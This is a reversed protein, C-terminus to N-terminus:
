QLVVKYIKIFKQHTIKILYIGKPYKSLDIREIKNSASQSQLLIGIQSYVIVKCDKLEKFDIFLVDSTPNPYLTIEEKSQLTFDSLQLRLYLTTDKTVKLVGEKKLYNNHLVQYEYNQNAKIDFFKANGYADTIKEENNLSITANEIIENEKNILNFFVKFRQYENGYVFKHIRMPSSGGLYNAVIGVTYTKGKKLGEFTYESAKTLSDLPKELDDLYLTYGKLIKTTDNSSQLKLDDIGFVFADNSICQIAIYVKQGGYKALNFSYKTWDTPTAFISDNLLFTFDKPEKGTTSIGVKFKELGYRDTVSKAFFSFNTNTALQIQPTILWDNNTDKKSAFSTAIKEGSKAKLEKWIPRTKQSNMIMFAMKEGANPFSYNNAPYTRVDDLDILTYGGFKKSWDNYQEFDDEFIVTTDKLMASIAKSNWTIKAKGEELHETSLISPKELYTTLIVKEIGNKNAKITSEINFYNERIVSYKKSSEGYVFRFAVRGLHNTTKTTGNFIIKTNSLPKGDTDKVEFTLNYGPKGELKIEKKTLLNAISVKGKQLIYGYNEVQYNESNQKYFYFKAVGSSDSKRKQGDMLVDVGEMAKGTEKDKIKLEVAFSKQMKILLNPRWKSINKFSPPTENDDFGYAVTHLKTQSSRVKTKDEAYRGKNDGWLLQIVINKTGSYAFPKNLVFTEWGTKGSLTYTSDFFVELANSMDIFNSLAEQSVEKIKISFNELKRKNKNSTAAAIDFSLEKIVKQEEGLESKYYLMQTKNNEYYNAFPYNEVVQKEKGLIVEDKGIFLEYNKNDFYISPNQKDAVNVALSIPISNPASASVKVIFRLTDKQMSNLALPESLSKKINLYDNPFLLHIKGKVVTKAKGKNQIPVLLEATEGLDLLGNNNGNQEKIKIKETFLLLDPTQLYISKKYRQTRLTDKFMYNIQINFDVKHGDLISDKLDVYFQNSILFSSEKAMNYANVEINKRINKIFVDSSSITVKVNKAEKLGLNKLKVKLNFTQSPSPEGNELVFEKVFIYPENKTEISIRKKYPKYQSHTVVIDAFGAQEFPNITMDVTGSQPVLAAKHLVSDKSIAVYSGAAASVTFQTSKTFISGEHLVNNEKGQTLYILLSPDSLCHYAEWYYRPSAAREYSKDHAEAVALNGVFVLADVSVYDSGFAADYAGLSSGEKSPMQGKVFSHAGVAWYFDEYWYSDPASGIYAVAGGKEKRMLAEGICEQVDFDGSECCNALILPYKNENTLTKVKSITLQPNYWTTQTCHATYNFLAAKFNDDAYCGSYSNSYTKVGTFGHEANFYNTTAYNITPVGVASRWYGDHGAIMTVKNLFSDDAFQYQEYYLIKDLMNKLEENTRASLRGYYMDPFIDNAGDMCAYYLDTVKSTSKGSQLSPPLKDTDGVLLLFTPAPDQPTAEDYRQKIWTKIESATNGIEDTTATTVYFGKMTKWKIFDKLEAKFEPPTVILYKVPYKTHDPNAPYNKNSNTTPLLTKKIIEFYPSYTRKQEEKTKEADANKLSVEIKIDNYVRITNEVPNYAIPNIDIKALNIGRLMGINEASALELQSFENKQYASTKYLFEQQTPDKSKPYSPQYPAIKNNIGFDSLKHEETKYSLVKINIEANHPIEIIKKLSPLEPTGLKGTRYAGTISLQTFNGKESKIDFTKIENTNITLYFKDSSKSTQLSIQNQKQNEELLISQQAELITTILVLILLLAVKRNALLLKKKNGIINRFIEKM